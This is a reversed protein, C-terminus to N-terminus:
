SYIVSDIPSFHRVSSINWMLLLYSVRWYFFIVWMHDTHHIFIKQRMSLLFFIIWDLINQYGIRTAWETQIEREEGDRRWRWEWRCKVVAISGEGLFSFGSPLCRVFSSVSATRL